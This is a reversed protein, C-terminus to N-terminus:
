GAFNWGAFNWGAFNAVQLIGVHLRRKTGAPQTYWYPRTNIVVQSYIFVHLM